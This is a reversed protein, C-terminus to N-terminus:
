NKAAAVRKLASQLFKEVEFYPSFLAVNRRMDGRGNSIGAVAVGLITGATADFVPGGSNGHYFSAATAEWLVGGVGPDKDSLRGMSIRPPVGEPCGVIAVSDGVAGVGKSALKCLQPVTSECKLLCLDRKKDVAVVRCRTWTKAGGASLEVQLNGAALGNGRKALVLHAASLLYTHDFVGYETLDIGFATGFGTVVYEGEETQLRLRVASDTSVRTPTSEIAYSALAFTLVCIACYAPRRM